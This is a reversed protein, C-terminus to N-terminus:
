TPYVLLASRVFTGLVQEGVHTLVYCVIFWGITPVRTASMTAHMLQTHSYEYLRINLDPLPRYFLMAWCLMVYFLKVYCLMARKLLEYFVMPHCAAYYLMARCLRIMVCRSTVHCQMACFLFSYLTRINIHVNHRATDMGMDMNMDM